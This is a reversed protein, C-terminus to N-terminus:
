SSFKVFNIESFTEMGTIAEPPAPTGSCKYSTQVLALASAAKIAEM